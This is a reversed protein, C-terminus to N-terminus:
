ARGMVLMHDQSFTTLFPLRERIQWAREERIQFITDVKGPKKTKKGGRSKESMM